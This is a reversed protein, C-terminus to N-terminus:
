KKQPDLYGNAIYNGPDTNYIDYMTHNGGTQYSISTIQVWSMTPINFLSYGVKLSTVSLMALTGNPLMVYLEQAPNQDVILTQGVTTQIIESNHTIVTAFNTITTHVFRNTGTDYSLLQMGVKLHQVSIQTGNALTILTGAAVSGSGGCNPCTVSVTIFVSNSLGAGTGTLTVIYNGLNVSNAVSITLVYSVQSNPSLTVTTPSPSATIGSIGTPPYATLTVSGTFGNRSTVYVSFGKSSGYTIDAATPNSTVTFDPVIAYNAVLGASPVTVTMSPSTGGSLWNSFSYSGTSDTFFSEATVTHPGNIQLFHDTTYYYPGGDMSIPVSHAPSTSTALQGNVVVDGSNGPGDGFLYIDDMYFGQGPDPSGTQYTFAISTATPPMTMRANIWETYLTKARAGSTSIPGSYGTWQTWVGNSLYSITVTGSTSVWFHFYVVIQNYNVYNGIRMVLPALENTQSGSWAMYTGQICSPGNIIPCNTLQWTGTPSWVNPNFVGNGGEFNETLVKYDPNIDLQDSVSVTYTDAGEQSTADTYGVTATLTLHHPQNRLLDSFSWIVKGALSADAPTLNPVPSGDQAAWGHIYAPSGDGPTSQTYWLLQQATRYNQVLANYTDLSLVIAGLAPDVFLLGGEIAGSAGAIGAVVEASGLATKAYDPFPITPPASPSVIVNYGFPNGPPNTSPDLAVEAKSDLAGNSTDALSVKLSNVYKPGITATFVLKQNNLQFFSTPNVSVVRTGYQDAIGVATTVGDNPTVSNYWFEIGSEGYRSSPDTVSLVHILFSEKTCCGSFVNDWAVFFGGSGDWWDWINGGCSLCLPRSFAAIVGPGISGTTSPGLVSLYGDSSVWIKNYYGSLGAAGYFIMEPVSIWAGCGSCHIGTNTATSIGYFSLSSPGNWTYAIGHRTNANIIFSLQVVDPTGTLLSHVKTSLMVEAVNDSSVAKNTVTQNFNVLENPGQPRLGLWSGASYNDDSNSPITTTAQVPKTDLALFTGLSVTM